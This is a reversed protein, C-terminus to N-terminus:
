SWTEGKLTTPEGGLSTMTLVGDATLIPGDGLLAGDGLSAKDGFVADDGIVTATRALTFRSLAISKM